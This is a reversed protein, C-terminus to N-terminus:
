AAEAEVDVARIDDGIADVAGCHWTRKSLLTDVHGPPQVARRADRAM